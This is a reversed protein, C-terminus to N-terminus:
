RARLGNLPHGRARADGRGRRSRVAGQAISWIYVLAQEIEVHNVNTPSWRGRTFVPSMASQDRLNSKLM